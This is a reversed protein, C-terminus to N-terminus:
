TKEIPKYFVHDGLVTVKKMKRMWRKKVGKKAYFTPDHDITASPHSIAYRAIHSALRWSAQDTVKSPKLTWSFQAPKYVVGCIGVGFTRKKVRALTVRAVALMGSIGEGRAEHYLNRTLCDLDKQAQTIRSISTRNELGPKRDQGLDATSILALGCWTLAFLAGVKMEATGFLDCVRSPIVTIM